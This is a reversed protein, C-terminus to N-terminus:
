RRTARQANPLSWITAKKTCNEACCFKARNKEEVVEAANSKEGERKADAVAEDPALNEGGANKSVAAPKEGDGRTDGLVKTKPTQRDGKGDGAVEVFKPPVSDIDPEVNEEDDAVAEANSGGSPYNM